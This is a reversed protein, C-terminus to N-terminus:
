IWIIRIPKKLETAYDIMSKTGTSKGDWFCIFYDGIEAMIKNRRPGASRGFKDWEAPYKELGYNNELAYREGLSDAGKCTGSVFILTYETKIKSICIDIYKKVETYNCYNRCGSVVIRKVM